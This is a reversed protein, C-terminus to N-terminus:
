KIAEALKLLDAKLLPKNNINRLIAAPHFTGMMLRGDREILEGHQKTVSFDKGIIRQASIRGVCLIVQPDIIEIQKQLWEICLDQETKKPDRNEPPRCKLMNAIYINKDRSLGVQALMETLLKGSRGVFPKGQEDEDKGPAEGILMVKANEVGDGFVLRTRSRCLECRECKECEIKLETLTM